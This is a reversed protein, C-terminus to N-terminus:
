QQICSERLQLHVVFLLYFFLYYSYFNTPEVFVIVVTREAQNHLQPLEGVISTRDITLM